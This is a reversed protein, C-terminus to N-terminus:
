YDLYAAKHRLTVGARAFTLGTRGILLTLRSGILIAKTVPEVDMKPFPALIRYSFGLFNQAYKMNMAHLQYEEADPDKSHEDRELGFNVSAWVLYCVGLGCEVWALVLGAGDLPSQGGDEPKTTGIGKSKCLLIAGDRLPFLVQLSTLVVEAKQRANAEKATVGIIATTMSLVWNGIDFVFKIKAARESKAFEKFGFCIFSVTRAAGIFFALIHSAKVPTSATEQGSADAASLSAPQPTTMGSLVDGFAHLDSTATLRDAEHQSFPAEDAVLKYMVTGPIAIILAGADLLTLRRGPAIVHEYLWTLIPIRIRLNLLAKLGEIALEVLKLLTVTGNEVTALVAESLATFVKEFMTAFDLSAFGAAIDLAVQKFADEIVHIENVAFDKLVGLLSTGEFDLETVHGGTFTGDSVKNYTWNTRADPTQARVGFHSTAGSLGVSGADGLKAVPSGAALQERMRDFLSSTEKALSAVSRAAYDLGHNVATRVVDHARLVDNWNFIFGLWRVLKNFAVGIEHFVQKVVDWVQEAFHIVATFAEELGHIVIKVGEKVKEFIFHTAKVIGNKVAHWVDGFFHGVKHFFGGGHSTKRTEPASLKALETKDTILRPTGKGVEIGWHYGDPLAALNIPKAIRSGATAAAVSGPPQDGAEVRVGSAAPHAPLEGHLKILERVAQAGGDLAEADAHAVLPETEDGRGTPVRASKLAQGDLGALKRAIVPKPDLDFPAAMDKTHIRIVPASLSAVRTSVALMGREDTAVTASDRQEDVFYHRGNLGVLTLESANVTVPEDVIPNDEGDTLLIQTTFCDAEVTDETADLLIPHELWRTTVPDRWLHHLQSDADVTFLDISDTDPNRWATMQGVRQELAFPEGWGSPLQEAAFWVVGDATLAWVELRGDTFRGAAMRAAPYQFTVSGIATSAATLQSTDKTLQQSPTLHYLRDSGLFLDTNGHVPPPVAFAGISFDVPVLHNYFTFDPLSTVVLRNTTEDVKILTYLLADVQALKELKRNHGIALQLVAEGNLPLPVERWLWGTDTPDPNVLYSAVHGDADATAVAVLVDGTKTAGTGLATVRVDNRNGRFVWRGPKRGPTMDSTFYLKPNNRHENDHLAVALIPTGDPAQATTLHTAETWGDFDESLDTRQWGTASGGAKTFMYVRKDSGISFFLLGGDRDMATAIETEGSVPSGAMYTKMLESSLSLNLM